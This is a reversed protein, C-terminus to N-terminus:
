HVTIAVAYTDKFVDSTQNVLLNTSSDEIPPTIFLM